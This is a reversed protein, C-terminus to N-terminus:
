IRILCNVFQMKTLSLQYRRINIGDFLGSRLTDIQMESADRGTEDMVYNLWFYAALGNPNAIDQPKYFRLTTGTGFSFVTLNNRDYKTRGDYVSAAFVAAGVPNNFTPQVGMWLVNLPSFYTPASMTAEM